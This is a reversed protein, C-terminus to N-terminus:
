GKLGAHALKRASSQLGIVRWAISSSLQEFGRRICSTKFNFDFFFTKTKPKLKEPPYSVLLRSKANNQDDKSPGPGWDMPGNNPSLAYNFVLDFEADISGKISTRTYRSRFNRSMFWFNVLM